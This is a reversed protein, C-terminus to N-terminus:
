ALADLANHQSRRPRFRYSFGLFEGEYIPTLIMVVAAQVIKDEIEAIGLPRQKGDARRFTPGVHRCREIREQRFGLTICPFLLSTVLLEAQDRM